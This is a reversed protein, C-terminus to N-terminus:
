RGHFYIHDKLLINCDGYKTQLYKVMETIRKSKENMVLDM